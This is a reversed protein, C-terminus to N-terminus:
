PQRNESDRGTSQRYATHSPVTPFIWILCYHYLIRILPMTGVVRFVAGDRVAEM